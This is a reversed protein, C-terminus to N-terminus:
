QRAPFVNQPFRSIVNGAPEYECVYMKRGRCNAEACGVQRTGKWVIQTFHGTAASFGPRDFRYQSVENYWSNIAAGMSSHGLALNEGFGSRSHEFVCRNAWNQAFSAARDSWTLAASGHRARFNNHTNLVVDKLSNNAGSNNNNNINGNNNNNSSGNGNNLNSGSGNNNVPPRSPIPRQNGNNPRKNGSNPRKNGTNPRKNGSNPRKNGTNPRKNGTGNKRNSVPPTIPSPSKKPSTVTSGKTNTATQDNKVVRNAAPARKKPTFDFQHLFRSGKYIYIHYTDEGDRKELDAAANQLFENLDDGQWPLFGESELMGQDNLPAAITSTRNEGMAGPSLIGLLFTTVFFSYSVVKFM